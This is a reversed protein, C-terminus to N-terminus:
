VFRKLEPKAPTNLALEAMSSVDTCSNLTISFTSSEAIKAKTKGEIQHRRIVDQSTNNKREGHVGSKKNRAGKSVRDILIGGGRIPRAILAAFGEALGIRM